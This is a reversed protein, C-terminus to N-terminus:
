QYQLFKGSEEAARFLRANARRVSESAGHDRIRPVRSRSVFGGSRRLGTRSRVNRRNVDAQLSRMGEFLFRRAFREGETRAREKTVLREVGSMGDEFKDIGEKMELFREDPKRVKTFANVLSDSLNDLLSPPTEPLPMNIHRHMEVAQRPSSAICTSVNHDAQCHTSRTVAPAFPSKGM